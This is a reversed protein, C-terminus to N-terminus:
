GKTSADDHHPEWPWHTSDCLLCYGPQHGTEAAYMARCTACAWPKAQPGHLDDDHRARRELEARDADPDTISLGTFERMIGLAEDRTEAQAARRAADLWAARRRAAGPSPSPAPAQGGDYMERLQRVAEPNAQVGAIYDARMQALAHEPVGSRALGPQQDTDWFRAALEAVSPEQEM